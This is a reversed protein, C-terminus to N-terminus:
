SFRCLWTEQVGTMRPTHSFEDGHAPSNAISSSTYNFIPLVIHSRITRYLCLPHYCTFSHFRYKLKVRLRRIRLLRRFLQTIIRLKVNCNRETKHPTVSRQRVRQPVNRQTTNRLRQMMLFEIPFQAKSSVLTIRRCRPAMETFRELSEAACRSRGVDIETNMVTM